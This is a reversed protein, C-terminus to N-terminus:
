DQGDGSYTDLMSMYHLAGSLDEAVSLLEDPLTLTVTKSQGPLLDFFNDCFNAKCNDLWLYCQRVLLESSVTVLLEQGQRKTELKVDAQPLLLAKNPVFYHLKQQQVGQKDRYSCAFVLQRPDQGVLLQALKHSAMIESSDAAIQWSDESQWLLQGELTMLKQEIDVTCPQLHDSVMVLNLQDETQDLLLNLMAYSRKAQYHLAKWRGFYDISSWSAVPWCDNFQWYLTGMCFPKAQRHAEIGMKIGEAQQVQSLYLFSEFDKAEHYEQRMYQRILQNGRPHKQHSLMVDSQIDFDKPQAYEAVSALIPFSQFGYESMFRPIRQKLETFAQEGHWVGWFHHNGTADQEPHEWFGIPSSSLYFRGPDFEAVLQPLLQKFLSQYDQKLREYLGEDYGFKEPWQWKEIGMEVENNGCWLGLCAHNRLRKINYVAERRVNDLFQEDGPYLTCAFMFDQWIILGHQDALQYFRENEYIGGGWVRLMNMNASVADGIVQQYKEDTVRTLFSDSPIYNAGKMFVPKDNVKLMFCQGFEDAENIVEITRLGISLQQQDILEGEAYLDVQWHYLYAEGLGNPWWRRPDDIIVSFNLAQDVYDGVLMCAKLEPQQLCHLKVEGSFTAAIDLEVNFLLSAQQESLSLQQYHVDAIKAKSVGRLYVDRWIGSTVFRPGWDWGFHYPAKRSYVSLKEDSKDNEAPYAYGKQEYQPLTETIPSRFDLLLENTGVKLGQKCPLSYCVFMNDSQLIQQGNLVVQCYTDLGEFVLELESLDFWSADLEFLLRYQWDCTEIWQLKKENDAVFPDDIQGNNYLDLFNCGPVQAPLWLEDGAKRFQWRGNLSLRNDSAM